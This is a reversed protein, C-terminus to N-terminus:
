ICHYGRCTIAVGAHHASPVLQRATCLTSVDAPKYQGDVAEEMIRDLEIIDSIVRAKQGDIAAQSLLGQMILQHCAGVRQVYQKYSM